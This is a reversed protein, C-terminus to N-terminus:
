EIDGFKDRAENRKKIHQEYEQKPTLGGFFKVASEREAEWQEIDFNGGLLICVTSPSCGVERSIQVQSMGSDKLKQIKASLVHNTM